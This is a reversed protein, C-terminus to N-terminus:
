LELIRHKKLYKHLVIRDRLTGTMKIVQVLDIIQAYRIEYHYNEGYEVVKEYARMLEWCEAKNIPRLSRYKYLFHSISMYFELCKSYESIMDNMGCYLDDYRKLFKKDNADPIKDALERATKNCGELVEIRTKTFRELCSYITEFHQLKMKKYGQVKSIICTAVSVLATLVAAFMSSQFFETWSM